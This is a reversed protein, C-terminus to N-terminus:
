PAMWDSTGVKEFTETLRGNNDVFVIGVDGLVLRGDDDLFINALKIDRHVVVANHLAVVGRVLDRFATLAQIPQGKFLDPHHALTERQHYETIMWREDANADILRLLSPEENERLTEIEVKLRGLAKESDKTKPIKYRKAAGLEAPKHPRTVETVGRALEMSWKIRQDPTQAMAGGQRLANDIDHIANTEAAARDPHLVLYVDGQGGSGLERLIPWGNVFKEDAM